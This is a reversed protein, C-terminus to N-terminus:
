TLQVLTLDDVNDDTVDNEVESLFPYLFYKTEYYKNTRM